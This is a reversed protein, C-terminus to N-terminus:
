GLLLLVIPSNRRIDLLPPHFPKLLVLIQVLFRGLSVRIQVDRRLQEVQSSEKFYETSQDLVLIHDVDTFCAVHMGYVEQMGDQFLRPVTPYNDPM